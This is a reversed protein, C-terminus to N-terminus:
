AAAARVAAPLREGAAARRARGPRGRGPRARHPAREALKYRTRGVSYAAAMPLALLLVGVRMLDAQGLVVACAAAALGAAAFARGRTTLSAIAERVAAEGCATPSRSGPSWTPSSRSPHAAVSRPRRPSCCGTRWCRARGADARRRPDRLRPRRPGGLRAHRAGPAPHRPALRRPAAGVLTRTATSVAIAYRRVADSVHVTRVFEVLRTVDTATAVPRLTDIASAAGHTDLMALEDDPDPYGMSVRAMFRDRQAEPLPYTGEMDVPNQTAIVM